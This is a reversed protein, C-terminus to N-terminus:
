STPIQYFNISCVINNVLGKIAGTSDKNTL